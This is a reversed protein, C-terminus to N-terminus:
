YYFSMALFDDAFELMGGGSQPAEASEHGFIYLFM